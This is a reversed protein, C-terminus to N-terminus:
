GAQLRWTGRGQHRTSISSTGSNFLFVSINENVSILFPSNSAPQLDFFFCLSLNSACVVKEEACKERTGIWNEVM